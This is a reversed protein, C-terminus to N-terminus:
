RKGFWINLFGNHFWVGFFAFLRLPHGMRSCYGRLIRSQKSRGHCLDCGDQAGESIWRSIGTTATCSDLATTRKARLSNYVFMWSMWSWCWFFVFLLFVGFFCGFNCGFQYLNLNLVGDREWQSSPSTTYWTSSHIRSSARSWRRRGGGVVRSREWTAAQTTFSASSTGGSQRGLSVSVVGM